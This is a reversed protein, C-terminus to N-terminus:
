NQYVQLNFKIVLKDYNEIQPRKYLILNCTIFDILVWYGTTPQLNNSKPKKCYCLVLLMAFVLLNATIKM